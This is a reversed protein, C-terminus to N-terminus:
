CLAGIEQHWQTLALEGKAQEASAKQHQGYEKVHHEQLHRIKQMMNVNRVM